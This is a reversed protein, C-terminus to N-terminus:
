STEKQLHKWANEEEPLNWESLSSDALRRRLEGSDVVNGAESDKLGAAIDQRVQLAYLLKEWSIDDPLTDIIRHATDKIANASQM